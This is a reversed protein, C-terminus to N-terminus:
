AWSSAPYMERGEGNGCREEGCVCVLEEGADLGELFLDAGGVEFGRLGLDELDLLM